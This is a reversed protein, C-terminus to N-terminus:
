SASPVMNSTVGDPAQDRLLYKLTEHRFIDLLEPRGEPTPQVIARLSPDVKLLYLRTSSALPIAGHATWEEEPRDVLRQIAAKIAEQEQPALTTFGMFTQHHIPFRFPAMNVEEHRDDM